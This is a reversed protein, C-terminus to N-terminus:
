GGEAFFSARLRTSIPTDDDLDNYEDKGQEWAQQWALLRKPPGPQRPNQLHFERLKHPSYKFNSAPYWDLDDDHGLWKVRYFLRNRVQKVGLIEQVEWVEEDTISIPPPPDNVQGPLPDNAAKRLRDPSFVNHIKMTEPLKVEFSNGIQRTIQFPGAMQHDLNHSPRQTKWNKTSVFVQDGVAFDIERRHRNVDTEKKSQAKAMIEKARQIAGQMRTAVERAKTQSLKEQATAVAPTKWDFSTRPLYGNLLEYPSMGISSHPLTLQAYDMMPLLDSWNDQYYNVFPRLRQDLYQNMIETQGDTQPHFATSLKLKIGLIRCFEKWFQSVFQPGRDSVISEPPGYYRYIHTTYMRAMDEATVQKHCPTSIAQKSLRDVVVFVNDYGHQDKPMSKYDMTVHQWPRDPIPLPHLMGPTKDRPVHARRCPQCNKVFREIDRLMKPWYYRPRLLQYTKDRGPHATSVQNHAEQILRTRLNNVDPVVLRGAYLLLGDELLFKSDQTTRAQQRVAELSPANLNSQLIYDTLETSEDIQSGEEIPALSADDLDIGLDQLVQPDIQDQSLFARTRYETKVQDQREVEDDRRTLADAKANQKGARYMVIFYYESLAEAWRAQRGTLQKTTMFYELAKHDTYIQIKKATNQLEPRWQDLSKVIALMEKDHIGYNCEAPAMTKSFYAVPYWEGDLHQQSLVGAIVGDSADTEVMSQLEPDYHRLISSSTLRSKLEEFAEWCNRDFQFPVGTKTLRVLPKAVVGYNRIFRRYFNCFGLFSQIGRVTTPAQWDRVVSVKDPDVEIGDTSIIFGLYKTRTVHFECKKIDVQLGADRLRQLVKQVHLTHDLPDESYVLIDDLYATCFDDLYDFLVDNMYRQYTAPGNTLGFPLVKCKYSGYRTRFTTLEESQPDMRIRHFAQRIDLKTFIKARSIRALTEDILPLPYRDKRTIQNLKRFDICFRLSGNAKKVFLVPAAFPAQSPEIFGKSLNDVLYQKVTELEETTMHYLPSYGLANEGELEIKHDYPRHPPLKDSESKSYVDQYKWYEPPLVKRIAELYDEEQEQADITEQRDQLVRDIEYISTTFAENEPVRLNYHFGIASVAAIDITQQQPASPPSAPFPKKKYPTEKVRVTGALNDEMKQMQDRMDWKHTRRLITPKWPKWPRTLPPEEPGSEDTSEVAEPDTDDFISEEETSNESDEPTGCCAESQRGAARRQDEAEFARDRAQIDEQYEATYKASQQPALAERQVLIEKVVSYSPNLHQPWHFRREKADILVNFYEFWKRGLICDHSGLDLILFPVNYQRRGDITLHLRLIHTISNGTKGDYGKVNIATPLRQAKIGLFKAMDIACLTDLFIFGNAGSDALAHLQISYGNKSLTCPITLHPGGVLQSL